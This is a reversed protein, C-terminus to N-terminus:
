ETDISTLISELQETRSISKKQKSSIYKFATVAAAGLTVLLTSHLLEKRKNAKQTAQYQQNMQPAM